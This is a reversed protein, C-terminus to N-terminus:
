HASAVAEGVALILDAAIVPYALGEVDAYAVVSSYPSSGTLMNEVRGLDETKM